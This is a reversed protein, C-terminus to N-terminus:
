ARHKTHRRKTQKRKSLRELAVGAALLAAAVAAYLTVALGTTALSTSEEGASSTSTAPASFTFPECASGQGLFNADGSYEAQFSYAGGTTLPGQNDSPPASGSAGITVTDTAAMTGTTCDGGAYFTYTVTGTPTIGSTTTLTATDFVTSGAPLTGAVPRGTSADFTTTSLAVAAKDVSVPECQSTGALHNADGAYHGEFAYHGNGLPGRNGSHPVSGDSGITVTDTGIVTGAACGGSSFFTYTATGTITFGGISTLNLTDFVTSGLPLLHIAAAGTSADIVTTSPDAGAQGVGFPECDNASSTAMNTFVGAAIIAIVGLSRVV